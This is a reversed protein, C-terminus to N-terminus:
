KKVKFNKLSAFRTDFQPEECGCDTANLNEGCHVCLGKCSEDCLPQIPIAMLIQERIPELLSITDEEVLTLGLEDATLEVGEDEDDSLEPLQRT